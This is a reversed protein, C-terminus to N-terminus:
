LVSGTAELAEGVRPRGRTFQGPDNWALAVTMRDDITSAAIIADDDPQGDVRAV